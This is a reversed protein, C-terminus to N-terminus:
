QVNIACSQSVVLVVVDETQALDVVDWGCLTEPVTEVLEVNNSVVEVSAQFALVQVSREVSSGLDRKLQALVSQSENLMVIVLLWTCPVEKISVTSNNGSKSVDVPSSVLLLTEHIHVEALVVSGWEVSELLAELIKSGTWFCDDSVVWSTSGLSM